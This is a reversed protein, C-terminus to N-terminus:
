YDFNDSGSDHLEPHRWGSEPAKQPPNVLEHIRANLRAIEAEQEARHKTLARLQKAHEARECTSCQWDRAAPEKGTPGIPFPWARGCDQCKHWIVPESLTKAPPTM